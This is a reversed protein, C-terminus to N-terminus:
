DYLQKAYAYADTTGAMYPVTIIAGDLGYEDRIAQAKAELVASQAQTLLGATDNVLQAAGGEAAFVPMTQLMLLALLLLAAFWRKVFRKQTM